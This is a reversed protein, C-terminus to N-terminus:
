TIRMRQVATKVEKLGIPISSSSIGRTTPAKIFAQCNSENDDIILLPYPHVEPSIPFSHRDVPWDGPEPLRPNYIWVEIELINEQYFYPDTNFDDENLVEDSLYEEEDPDSEPDNDQDDDDFPPPM